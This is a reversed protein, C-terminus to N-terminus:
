PVASGAGPLASPGNECRDFRAKVQPPPTGDGLGDVAPRLYVSSCDKRSGCTVEDLTNCAAKTNMTYWFAGNVRAIVPNASPASCGRGRRANTHDFIELTEGRDNAGRILVSGCGLDTTTMRLSPGSIISLPLMIGEGCAGYTQQWTGVTEVGSVSGPTTFTTTRLSISLVQEAAGCRAFGDPRAYLPAYTVTRALGTAGEVSDTADAQEAACGVVATLSFSLLGLISSFRMTSSWAPADGLPSARSDSTPATVSSPIDFGGVASFNVMAGNSRLPIAMGLTGSSPPAQLHLSQGAASMTYLSTVTAGGYSNTYAANSGATAGGNLAADPQNGAATMNGDVVSGDLENIRFNLGSPGVVRIRDAVPNFDFGYGITASPAPLNISAGAADVLAIGGATGVLTMAGTQPDILYLSANKASELVGLGYLQGTAPRFDIGALVEARGAPPFAAGALTLAVSTQTVPASSAFRLLNTGQLVVVPIAAAQQIALGRVGATVINGVSTVTGTGLNVKVLSESSAGGDAARKVVAYGDGTVAANSSAANVNPAIDFGLM